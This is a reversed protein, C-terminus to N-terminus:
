AGFEKLNMNYYVTGGNVKEAVAYNDFFDVSMNNLDKCPDKTLNISCVKEKGDNTEVYVLLNNEYTTYEGAPLEVVEKKNALDYLVAKNDKVLIVPKIKKKEFMYKYANSSLEVANYYECGIVENNSADVIRVNGSDCALVTYDGANSISDSVQKSVYKESKSIAGNEIVLYTKGEKLVGDDIFEIAATNAATYIEEGTNANIVKAPEGWNKVVVYVDDGAKVTYASCAGKCEYKKNQDKDTIYADGVKKSTGAAAASGDSSGATSTNPKIIQDEGSVETTEEKVEEVSINYFYGNGIYTSRVGDPTVKKMTNDYVSRNIYWLNRDVDYSPNEEIDADQEVKVNGKKDIIASVLVGAKEYSVSAYEGYFRDARNYKADIVKENKEPDYFGFLGSSQDEYPLYAKEDFIISLSSSGIADQKDNKFLNGKTLIISVVVAVIALILLVGLVIVKPNKKSKAAPVNLVIDGTGEVKNPNSDASIRDLEAQAASIDRGPRMGVRANFYKKDEDHGM